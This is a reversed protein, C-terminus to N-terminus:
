NSSTDLIVSIVGSNSPSDPNISNSGLVGLLETHTKCNALIEPMQACIIQFKETLNM